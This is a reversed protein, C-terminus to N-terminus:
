ETLPTNQILAQSVGGGAHPLGWALAAGLLFCPFVGVQTPFVRTQILRQARSNFCGWRRPSSAKLGRIR